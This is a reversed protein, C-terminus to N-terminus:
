GGQLVYSTAASTPNTLACLLADPSSEYVLMCQKSTTISKKTKLVIHKMSQKFSRTSKGVKIYEDPTKLRSFENLQKVNEHTEIFNPLSKLVLNNNNETTVFGSTTLSHQEKVSLFRPIFELSADNEEDWNESFGAPYKIKPFRTDGERQMYDELNALTPVVKKQALFIFRLLLEFKKRSIKETGKVAPLGTSEQWIQQLLNRSLLSSALCNYINSWCVGGTKRYKVHFFRYLLIYLKNEPSPAANM